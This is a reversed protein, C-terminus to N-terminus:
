IGVFFWLYHHFFFIFPTTMFFWFIFYHWPVFKASLYEGNYLIQGSWPYNAFEVIASVLNKFSNEWLFPWFLILVISYILLYKILSYIKSKINIKETHFFYFFFTIFPFFIGIIRVDAMLASFFAAFFINKNNTLNLFKINFYISFIFSSLFVIDKSNYFSDAFIRPSFILFLLGILAIMKDKFIELCLFFFCVSSCYFISFTMFHRFLYIDKTNKLGLIVEFFSAPLDFAVGYERDIYDTILPINKFYSNLDINLSFFNIIYNLSVFGNTRNINEDFSIGFDRFISIGLIFYGIFFFYIFFNNKLNIIRDILYNKIKENM